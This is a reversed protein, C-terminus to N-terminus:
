SRRVRGSAPAFAHGSAHRRARARRVKADTGCHAM